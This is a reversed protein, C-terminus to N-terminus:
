AKLDTPEATCSNFLELNPCFEPGVRAPPNADLWLLCERTASCRLCRSRAQLYADGTALRNFKAPDVQQRRMMDHMRTARGEVHQMADHEM